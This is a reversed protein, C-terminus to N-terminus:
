FRTGLDASVRSDGCEAVKMGFSGALEFIEFYLRRLDASGM